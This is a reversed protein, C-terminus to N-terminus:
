TRGAHTNIIDVLAAAFAHCDGPWRASLYNDDRVTFGHRQNSASDRVPILPRM